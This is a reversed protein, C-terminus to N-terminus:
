ALEKKAIIWKCLLAIILSFGAWYLFPAYPIMWHPVDEYYGLDLYQEPNLAPTIRRMLVISLITFIPTAAMAVYENATILGALVGVQPMAAAAALYMSACLMDHAVASQLYLAWV